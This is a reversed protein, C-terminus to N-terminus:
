TRKRKVTNLGFMQIINNFIYNNAIILYNETSTRNESVGHAVLSTTGSIRVYRTYDKTM